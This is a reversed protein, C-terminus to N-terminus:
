RAYASLRRRRLRAILRAVVSFIALGGKIGVGITFGKASATGIRWLKESDQIRISNSLISSCSSPDSGGCHPCHPDDSGHPDDPDSGGNEWSFCACRGGAGDGSPSM